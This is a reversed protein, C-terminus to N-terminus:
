TPSPIQPVLFFSISHSSAGTLLCVPISPYTPLTLLCRDDARWSNVTPWQILTPLILPCDQERAINLVTPVSLLSEKESQLQFSSIILYELPFPIRRIVHDLPQAAKSMAVTSHLCLNESYQFSPKCVIAWLNHTFPKTNKFLQFFLLLIINYSIHFNSLM